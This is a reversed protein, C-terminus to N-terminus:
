HQGHEHQRLWDQLQKIETNQAKIIDESMKRLVPDKGYKLQTQAMAVAAQHHPIMGRAFDVDADDTYAINMGAHMEDMTTKYEQTSLSGQQTNAHHQHAPTQAMVATSGLSLVAAMLLISKM